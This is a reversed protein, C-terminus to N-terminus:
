MVLFRSLCATKQNKVKAHSFYQCHPLTACLITSTTFHPYIHPYNLCFTSLQWMFWWYIRIPLRISAFVLGRIFEPEIRVSEHNM